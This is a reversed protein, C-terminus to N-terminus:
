CYKQCKYCYWRSYQQIYSLPEKCTSCLQSSASEQKVSAKGSSKLLIFDGVAQIEDWDITKSKGDNDEILLSIGSKGVTFSIDKVKGMSKATSDVVQMDVLKDRTIAKKEDGMKVKVKEYNKRNVDNLLTEIM